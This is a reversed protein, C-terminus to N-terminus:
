LCVILSQKIYRICHKIDHERGYVSQHAEVHDTVNIESLIKFTHCYLKESYTTFNSNEIAIM